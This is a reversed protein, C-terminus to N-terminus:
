PPTTRRAKTEVGNQLIRAATVAGAEDRDFTLTVDLGEMAVFFKTESEPYITFRSQGTLQATMRGRQLRVDLILGRGLDYRGACSELLPAAVAAPARLKRLEGEGLLRFGVDDAGVDSNTLVVVGRGGGEVFGAFSRYGGTGGNHWVVRRGDEADLLHWGLGIRMKPSGAGRRPERTRAMAGALPTERLGMQAAVFAAMDRASSRLAGAGALTPLDWNSREVVGSMAPALRSRQAETLGIRTDALGLPGAIRATVLEEYSTGARRALLHGLLGAGLNSYVYRSGVDRRLKHASLFDYMQQVAYDAYPNDPNAPKMNNPMRPLGSAHTALDALTISKGERTPARVEPPLYKEIPDDLAVEGRQVMDALILGTFVKTISGIEYITHEDPKSDEGYGFTRTGARDVLAVVIGANYGYEVRARVSAAVDEPLEPAQAAAACLLAILHM